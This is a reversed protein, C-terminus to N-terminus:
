PLSRRWSFSTAATLIFNAGVALVLMGNVWGQTLAPWALLGTSQLRAAHGTQGHNAEWVAVVALALGGGCGLAASLLM